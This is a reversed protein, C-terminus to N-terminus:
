DKLGLLYDSEIHFTTCIQIVDQVAPLSKGREWLSITDQSVGLMDGFRTQSIKQEIRTERIREGIINSM